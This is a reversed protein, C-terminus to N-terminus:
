QLVQVNCQGNSGCAVGPSPAGFTATFFQLGGNPIDFTLLHQSNTSFSAVRYLGPAAQTSPAISLEIAPQGDIHVDLRQAANTTNGLVLYVDQANVNIALTSGATADIHERNIVWAGGLTWANTKPNATATYTHTGTNLAPSGSYTQARATGFYTEPTEAGLNLQSTQVLPETVTKGNEALLSQIAKESLDYDGEGFFTYRLHGKADILYEAPWYNNHFATWTSYNPDLAVPYTISFGKVAAAVNAPVKEFEFEPTHVAIIDFGQHHYKDYWTQVYPLTRICNICSYTWFKVLVVHGRLGALTLPSTNLWGTIGTLKPAPGYDPLHGPTTAVPSTTTPVAAKEFTQLNSLWNPTAAVIASQVKQDLNFVMLTAMIVLVVGFVQQLRQGHQKFWTLRSSLRQGFWAILGMPLAAGIAYSITAFVVTSTVAGTQTAAILSALIPGACPTWVTGLSLGLVLGGFFGHQQKLPTSRSIRSLAIELKELWTPIVMVLGLVFLLGIGADRTTNSSWGLHRVFWSITLTFVSFAVIVGLIIGWPRGRGQLAGGSLVIPLIPLICPALITVIGAFFAFFIVVM